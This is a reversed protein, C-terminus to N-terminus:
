ITRSILEKMIENTGGYIRQVRADVYGRCIPYEWMYGWGGHLQVCEDAVACQLDSGWYKAMSATATDLRKDKHLELCHDTFARSVVIKTKLEALRHRITQLSSISKGFAQREKVYARTMEFYAEAAAVAMDAILLREQPLEQMLYYFGSDVKGLVNEKPVKVNDFFLESTDQAKMGMKKLLRGRTFGEMGEEVLFLTIGHPGKKPDTKACVIVVDAMNGNTIFVKSGNLLYSGNAEETATTKMGVLDSGAAPETMAIAGIWEGTAMKPLFKNKQAVSGYNEIYPMVIDSHLAFGPGTCTSYAQEEWVIASYLTDVGSGGYEESTASGLLGLKGAKLWCERSVKGDEEWQAHHPKVEEEFYKRATARFMDHDDNFIRRTGMDLM